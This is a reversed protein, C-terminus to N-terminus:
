RRLADADAALSAALFRPVLHGAEPHPEAILRSAMDAARGRRAAHQALRAFREARADPGMRAVFGRPDGLLMELQLDFDLETPSGAFADVPAVGSPDAGLPRWQGVAPPPAAFPRRSRLPAGGAISGPWPAVAPWTPAAMALENRSPAPPLPAPERTQSAFLLAAGALGAALAAPALRRFRGRVVRDGAEIRAMVAPALDPISAPEPLSRLLAVTARLEALEARCAPCADLHADLRAREAAGLDGELYEGLRQRLRRHSV